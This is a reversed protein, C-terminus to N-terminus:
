NPCLCQIDNTLVIVAKLKYSQCCAAIDVEQCLLHWSNWWVLQQCM